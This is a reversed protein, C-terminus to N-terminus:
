NVFIKFGERVPLFFKNNRENLIKEIEATDGAQYMLCSDYAYSTFYLAVQHM